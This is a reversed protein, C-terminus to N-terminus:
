VRVCARPPTHQVKMINTVDNVQAQVGAVKDMQELNDYRHTHSHTHPHTHTHTHTHTHARAHLHAHTHTRARAEGLGQGGCGVALVRRDCSGTM